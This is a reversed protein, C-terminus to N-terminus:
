LVFHTLLLSKLIKVVRRLRLRKKQKIGSYGAVFRTELDGGANHMLEAAMTLVDGNEEGDTQMAAWQFSDKAQDRRKKGNLLFHGYAVNM